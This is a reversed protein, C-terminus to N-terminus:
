GIVAITLLAVTGIKLLAIEISELTAALTEWAAQDWPTRITM